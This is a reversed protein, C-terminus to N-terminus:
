AWRDALARCSAALAADTITGLVPGVADYCVSLVDVGLLCATQEPLRWGSAMRDSRNPEALPLAIGNIGM